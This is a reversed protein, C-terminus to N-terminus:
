AALAFADARNTDAGIPKCPDNVLYGQTRPVSRRSRRDGDFGIVGQATTLWEGDGVALPRTSRLLDLM